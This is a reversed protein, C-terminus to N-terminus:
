PRPKKNGARWFGNDVDLFTDFTISEGHGDVCIINASGQHAKPAAHNYKTFSSYSDLKTDGDTDKSYEWYSAGLVHDGPAYLQDPDPNGDEDPGAVDMFAMWSTNQAESLRVRLVPGVNEYEGYVFPGALIDPESARRVWGYHVGVWSRETPCRRIDAERGEDREEGMYEGLVNYWEAYELKSAPTEPFTNSFLPFYDKSEAAYAHMAVGYQKMNSSCGIRKATERAAGLAPLLIGVLLAIISIVVLLEILTFGRLTTQRRSADGSDYVDM